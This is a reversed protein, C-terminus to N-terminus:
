NRLLAVSQGRNAVTQIKQRDHHRLGPGLLVNLQGSGRAPM